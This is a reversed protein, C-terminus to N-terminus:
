KTGKTESADSSGAFAAAAAKDGPRSTMAAAYAEAASKRDGLKELIRGHLMAADYSSPEIARSIRVADHAESLDGTGFAAVAKGYWSDYTGLSALAAQAEEAEPAGDVAVRFEWAANVKDGEALLIRGKEYHAEPFSPDFALAIELQEKAMDKYDLGVYAQALRLYSDSADKRIRIAAKLYGVAEVYQKRVLAIEGLHFNAFERRENLAAYDGGSTLTLVKLLYQEANVYDKQLLAIAALNQYAGVYTKDIQVAVILQAKAENMLGAAGLAEALRSRLTPDNPNKEVQKRLADIVLLAPSSLKAQQQQAYVSYGFLAAVAILLAGVAWLAISVRQDLRASAIAEPDLDVHGDDAVEDSSGDLQEDSEDDPAPVSSTDELGDDLETM